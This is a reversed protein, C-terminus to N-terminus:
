AHALSIVTSAITAALMVVAAGILAGIWTQKGEKHSGTLYQFGGYIIAITAVALLLRGQASTAISGIFGALGDFM